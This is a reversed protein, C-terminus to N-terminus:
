NCENMLEILQNSYRHYDFINPNVTQRMEKLLTENKTCLIYELSQVIDSNIWLGNVGEILFDALDSTKNTIVPTGCSISESFKTPFGAMNVRTLERYFLSFDAQKLYKLTELHSVKGIFQVRNGLEDVVKKKKPYDKIFQTETLGIILFKFSESTVGALAELIKNIKDKNRGPSGAYVIVIGEHKKYEGALRWKLESMDTLPPILVTPLKNEYFAKLYKSIVIIGDLQPHLIKMRFFTDIKKICDKICNKRQSGYWETCDSFLKINNNKCVNKLKYLAIAPFNYAIVSVISDRYINFVCIFDEISYLRKNLYKMSYRKFGFCISFTEKIPKVCQKDIDIFIVEYNNDRLIKANNLVRHAAANKDPLEFGGIYIITQKM